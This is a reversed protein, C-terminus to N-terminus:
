KYIDSPLKGVIGGVVIERVRRMKLHPLLEVTIVGVTLILLRSLVWKEVPKM